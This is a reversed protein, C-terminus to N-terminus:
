PSWELKRRIEVLANHIGSRLEKKSDAGSDANILHILFTINETVSRFQRLTAGRKRATLYGTVIRDSQKPLSGDHISLILQCDIGSIMSWFGPDERDRDDADNKLKELAEKEEPQIGKFHGNQLHLITAAVLSNTFPYFSIEGHNSSLHLDSAKKYHDRMKKLADLITGHSAGCVARIQALRRYASGKLCEREVTSKFQQKVPPKTKKYQVLGAVSDIQKLIEVADIIQKEATEHERKTGDAKIRAAAQRVQLNAFQEMAKLSVSGDEAASAKRYWPIAADFQDFEGYASGIAACVNGNKQWDKLKRNKTGDLHEELKELLCRRREEDMATAAAKAINNLRVILDNQTKPREYKRKSSLNTNKLTYQPDGYCQYAGWTNVEPHQEFVEKRAQFVAEGFNSGDIMWKYFIGAFTKAANDDVAWGAAVVARSGMRIFQVSLNAALAPFNGNRKSAGTKGLHCCNIFVLEPVRRMQKIDQTNLFATDGIVMGSVNEKAKAAADHMEIKALEDKLNLEHVGHGALHLIRYSDQHIAKLIGGSDTNIKKSVNFGGEDRLIGAVLQAEEAAGPLSAWLKRNKTHPEGIVLAFNGASMKPDRRFYVSELQRVIRYQVAIPLKRYSLRDELLEWPYRAANEDVMLVTDGLKDSIEKLENPILMEFLTKPLQRHKWISATAGHIFQDVKDRDVDILRKETRARDSITHFNLAGDELGHIQLRNWWGPEEEYFARSQGGEVQDLSLDYDFAQNIKSNLKFIRQAANAALIAKDEWLEIIQLENISQNRTKLVNNADVTGQMIAILVDSLPLGGTSVGVLLSTVTLSQPTSPSVSNERYKAKEFAYRQLAKAVTEALTQVTLKGVEGLGVILAGRPKVGDKGMILEASNLPGPYLGLDHCKQLQGNLCRDLYREASFIGDGVYHGVMVPNRSFALNGHTIRLKIRKGPPTQVAGTEAGMAWAKIEMEDPYVETEDPQMDFQDLVGRATVPEHRSLQDTDGTKILDYIGKFAPEYNALDGHTAEMYWTPIGTPIGTAWPVRGDGKPTGKFVPKNDEVALAAPTESARGAVYLVRGKTELALPRSNILMRVDRAEALTDLDPAAFVKSDTQALRQWTDASFFDFRDDGFPLLFLAGPYRSIITLLRKLSHQIDILALGKVLKDHGFLMRPISFSGGNPTGLMVLRSDPHKLMGEWADPHTVMMIRALLGGMSHALISVPQNEAAAQDVKALIAKALRTAEDVLSTRWDYDFPIVENRQSLYKVLNWYSERILGSSSIGTDTIELKSMGGLALRLKNAWITEGHADLESGMIGPLLFIVPQPGTYTRYSRSAIPGEPEPLYETFYNKLQEESLTLGKLIRSVTKDNRFYRFHSVESGQDFFYREGSERDNGGYMSPTNVVLDHDSDFFHDPLLLAIRGVIGGGEIDGSIVTLSSALKRSDGNLLAIMPSTPMQAELGPLYEPKTRTKVLARIFNNLLTYYPTARLAPILGLVNFIVSLWRDLRGSALTTGRAPCAVRVFKQFQINKQKLLINLERLKEVQEEYATMAGTKGEGLGEAIVSARVRYNELEKPLFPDNADNVMSRCVLEGVIGGRSHSVLHVISNEPLEKILDMANQIPSVSLTWHELAYIRGDYHEFLKKKINANPKEWIGGFSGSTSSATGHIFVLTPKSPDHQPGFSAPTLKLSESPAVHYLGPDPVSKIEFKRCIELGSKEAIDVQFVELRKVAWDVIGRSPPGFTLSHITIENSVVDRSIGAPFDRELDDRRSFLHIGGDFVLELVDDPQVDTLEATGEARDPSIVIGGKSKVDFWGRYTQESESLQGPENMKGSSKITKGLGNNDSISM